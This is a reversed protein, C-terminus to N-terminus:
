PKRAFVLSFGDVSVCEPPEFGAAGCWAAVDRVTYSRGSATYYLMTAGFHVAHEPGNGQEDIFMDKFVVTGGPALAAFLRRTMDANDANSEGHVINSLLAADYPGGFDDRLFDGGRYALSEGHRARALEIVIPMDFLTVAFGRATLAEGYRGHGGGVDLVRASPVLRPALWRAVDEAPAASRRHLMDLFARTAERDQPLVGGSTVKPRGEGDKVPGGQRLVDAMRSLDELATLNRGTPLEGRAHMQRASSSLAWRVGNGDLLGASALIPATIALARADGPLDALDVPAERRALEDFLGLAHWASAVALLKAHRVLVDVDSETKLHMATLM